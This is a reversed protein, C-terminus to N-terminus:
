VVDFGVMAWYLIVVCFYRVEILESGLIADDANWCVVQPAVTRNALALIKWSVSESNFELRNEFKKVICPVGNCMTKVLHRDKPFYVYPCRKDPRGDNPKTPSQNIFLWGLVVASVLAFLTIPWNSM